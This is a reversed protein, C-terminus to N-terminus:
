GACVKGTTLVGGAQACHLQVVRHDVRAWAHLGAQVPACLPPLAVPQGVTPQGELCAAPQSELCM